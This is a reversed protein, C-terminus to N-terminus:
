CVSGGDDPHSGLPLADTSPRPFGDADYVVVYEAVERTDYGACELLLGAQKPLSMVGDYDVVKNGEVIIGIHETDSEGTGKPWYTWEILLRQISDGEIPLEYLTMENKHEGLDEVKPSSSHERVLSSYFSLSAINKM